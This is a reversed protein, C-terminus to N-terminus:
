NTPGGIVIVHVQGQVKNLQAVMIPANNLIRIWLADCENTNIIVFNRCLVQRSSFLVLLPRTGIPLAFPRLPSSATTM